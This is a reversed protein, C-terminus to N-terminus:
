WRSRCEKGVRREESRYDYYRYTSTDTGYNLGDNKAVIDIRSTVTKYEQKLEGDIVKSVETEWLNSTMVARAVSDNTTGVLLQVADATQKIESIQKTSVAGEEYVQVYDIDVTGDRNLKYISFRLPRPSKISITYVDFNQNLDVTSLGDVTGIKLSSASLAKARIKVTYVVNPTLSFEEYVRSEGDINAYNMRLYKNDSDYWISSDGEFIWGSIGNAFDGNSLLQKARSYEGITTQFASDSLVLQGIKEGNTGITQRYSDVTSITQNIKTTNQNVYAITNEWGNVTQNLENIRKTAYNDALELAKSGESLTIWYRGGLIDQLRTRTDPETDPRFGIQAVGTEDTIVTRPNGVGVGNISSSPILTPADFFLDYTSGRVPINANLTYRTNPKGKYTYTLINPNAANPFHDNAVKTLDLLNLDLRGEVESLSQYIEGAKTSIQTNTYTKTAYNDELDTNLNTIALDFGDARANMNAIDTSTVGSSEYVMMDTFEMTGSSPFYISLAYGNSRFTGSIVKEGNIREFRIREGNAQGVEVFGDSRGIFKFSFNYIRDETLPINNHIRKGTSPTNYVQVAMRGNSRSLAVDEHDSVWGDLGESFFRDTFLNKISM